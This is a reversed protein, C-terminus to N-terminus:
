MDGINIGGAIKGMNNVIRRKDNWPVVANIKSNL